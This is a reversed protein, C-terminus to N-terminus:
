PEVLHAGRVSRKVPRRRSDFGRKPRLLHEITLSRITFMSTCTISLGKAPCCFPFTSIVIYM